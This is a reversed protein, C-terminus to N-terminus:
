SRIVKGLYIIMSFLSLFAAIYIGYLGIEYTNITFITGNFLLFVISLMQFFTKVKGFSNVELNKESKEKAVWERLASIIVERLIIICIPLFIILNNNEILILLLSSIVLLKDAVPDLFRGLATVQDMKRAVFGDLYDTIAAVSFILIVYYRSNEIDYFFIVVMFPIAIIRFITILNAYTM